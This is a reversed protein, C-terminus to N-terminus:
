VQAVESIRNVFVTNKANKSPILFYIFKPDNKHKHLILYQWSAVDGSRLQDKIFYIIKNM